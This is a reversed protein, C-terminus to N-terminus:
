RKIFHKILTKTNIIYKIIWYLYSLKYKEPQESAVVRQRKQAPKTKKRGTIRKRDYLGTGPIGYNVYTGKKGVNVSAGPKGFTFSVGSKSFNARIGKTIKVSKRYRM